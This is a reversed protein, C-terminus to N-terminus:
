TGGLHRQFFREGSEIEFRPVEAHRGSNAHLTKEASGFANFPALASTLPVIEDDWQVLFEVSWPLFHDVDADSGLHDSATSAFATRCRGCRRGCRRSRIRVLQQTLALPDAPREDDGM